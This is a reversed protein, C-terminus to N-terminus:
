VTALLVSICFDQTVQAAFACTFLENVLVLIDPDFGQYRLVSLCASSPVTLPLRRRKREKLFSTKKRKARLNASLCFAFAM